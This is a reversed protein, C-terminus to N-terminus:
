EPFSSSDTLPLLYDFFFSSALVVVSRFSLIFATPPRHHSEPVPKRLQKEPLLWAHFCVRNE